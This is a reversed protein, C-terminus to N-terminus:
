AITPAARSMSVSNDLVMVVDLPRRTERLAVRTVACSEPDAREPAASSADFFAPPTPQEPTALEEPPDGDFLAERSPEASGCALALAAFTALATSRVDHKVKV